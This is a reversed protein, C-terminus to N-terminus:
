KQMGCNQCFKSDRDNDAGCNACKWGEESVSNTDIVAPAEAAPAEVVPPVYAEPVSYSAAESQGNVNQEKVEQSVAQTTAAAVTVAAGVATENTNQNVNQYTNVNQPYGNQQFGNQPYGQQINQQYGNQPYNAQQVPNQPYGYGSQNQQMNNQPYGQQPYGGQQFGNQPYGANPYGNQPYGQQYGNAGYGMQPNYGYAMNAPNIQAKPKLVLAIINLIMRIFSFFVLFILMVAIGVGFDEADVNSLSLSLIDEISCLPSLSLGFIFCLTGFITDAIAVGRSCKAMISFVLSLVALVFGTIAMARTFSCANIAASYAEGISFSSGESIEVFVGMTVIAGIFTLLTIVILCGKAVKSLINATKNM